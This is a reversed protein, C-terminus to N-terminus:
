PARRDPQPKLWVLGFLVLALLSLAPMAVAYALGLLPWKVARLVALRLRDRPTVSRWWEDWTLAPGRLPDGARSEGEADLWLTRRGRLVLALRAVNRFRQRRGVYPVIVVDFRRRRLRLLLRPGAALIGFRRRDYRHIADALGRELLPAGAAANTVVELRARPQTRRIEALAGETVPLPIARIFLISAIDTM